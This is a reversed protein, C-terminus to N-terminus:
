ALVAHIAAEVGPQNRPDAETSAISGLRSAEIWDRHALEVWALGLVAQVVGPSGATRFRDAAQGYWRRAQDLDGRARAVDGRSAMARAEGIPSGIRGHLVRAREFARDAEALAGDRLSRAGLVSWAEALHRREGAESLFRAAIVAHGRARASDGLGEACQSRAAHVTGLLHQDRAEDALGEARALAVDAEALDGNRMRVEGVVRAARAQLSRWGGGRARREAEVAARRADAMRGLRAFVEARRVALEAWQIDPAEIGALTLASEIEGLVPLADRDGMARLRHRFAEVLHPIAQDPREGQLLHRGVREAYRVGDGRHLLMRACARHHSGLRGGASAASLVAERFLGHVFQWGADTEVVLQEAVLRDVVEVRLAANEPLFRVQGRASWTGKPDDCVRQWEEPDFSSGLTAARELLITAAPPLGALVRDLRDRWVEPMSGVAAVAGPRDPAALAFGGDAATLRGDAVWGRVVQVAHMPNGATREALQAALTPELPILGRVLREHDNRGLPELDIRTTGDRHLLEDLDARGSTHSGDATPDTSEGVVLVLLVPTPRVNQAQLLHAAFRVLDPALHADDYLLVAGHSSLGLQDLVLRAATYRAEAGLWTGQGESAPALLAAVEAAAEERGPGFREILRATRQDATLRVTRYARRFPRSLAEYPAEGHRAEGTLFPLGGLAHAAEGVWRALRTKGIGAPGRIVVVEARGRAVVMRVRDWLLDREAIRGVLPVPRLGVLRLGAKLERLAPAPAEITRWDEPIRSTSAGSGGRVVETPGDLEADDLSLKVPTLPQPLLDAALTASGLEHLSRIAERATTFRDDPRKELLKAVWADFGHPVPFRPILPDPRDELHATILAPGKAAGFPRPNAGVVKYILCGLGYLDTWPGFDRWSGTIQEPSMYALTGVLEHAISREVTEELATAIGFDSLKWGPRADTLGSRLVNGPKLDRHVVGRAHAHALADLLGILLPKLDNDWGSATFEGLTGGSAYEMAFYPSGAELRNHTQAAVEATIRGVDYIWVIGPHDLAAISRVENRFSDPSADRSLHRSLVKVAVPVGTDRHMGRWVVGTGGRGIPQALDFPGVRM